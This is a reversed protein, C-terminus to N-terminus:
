DTQWATRWLAITGVVLSVLVEAVLTPSLSGELNALDPAIQLGIAIMVVLLIVAPAGALAGVRLVFRDNLM